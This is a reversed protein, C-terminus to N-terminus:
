NNAIVGAGLQNVGTGTVTGKAYITYIKGAVFVNDTLTLLPSINAGSGALRIKVVYTGANVSIFNAKSNDSVNDAYSRNAFVLSDNAYIDVAVAVPSLDLFRVKTKNAAPAALNDEVAFVKIKGGLLTDYAFVSYNKGSGLGASTAAIPNISNASTVKISYTGPALPLYASNAPYSLSQTNLKTDNFYFNRPTSDGPSANVLMVQANAQPGSDSSKKCAPLIAAAMFVIALWPGYQKMSFQKM